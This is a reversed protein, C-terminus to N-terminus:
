RPSGEKEWKVNTRKIPAALMEAKIELLELIEDV